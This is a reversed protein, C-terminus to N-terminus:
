SGDPSRGRARGEAGGPGASTASGALDKAAADYLDAARRALDPAPEFGNRRGCAPCTADFFGPM